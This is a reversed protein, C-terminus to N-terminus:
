LVICVMNQVFQQGHWALLSNLLNWMDYIIAQAKLPHPDIKIWLNKNLIIIKEHAGQDPAIEFNGDIPADEPTDLDHKVHDNNDKDIPINENDHCRQILSHNYQLFVVVSAGQNYLKFTRSTRRPQWCWVNRFQNRRYSSPERMTDRVRQWRRSTTTGGGGTTVTHWRFTRYFFCCSIM